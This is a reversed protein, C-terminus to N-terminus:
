SAPPTKTGLATLMERETADLMEAPDILLLIQAGGNLSAIRDIIRTGDSIEPARTVASGPLRIVEKVDDVVFGARLSGLAVVLIRDRSQAAAETDFRRRQDIVPVPHGRLNMIGEVFKPARPVRTLRDPRRVIEEVSAAPLAFSEQGIRFVVLPETMTETVGSV